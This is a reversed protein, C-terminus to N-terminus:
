ILYWWPSNPRQGKKEKKVKKLYKKENFRKIENNM